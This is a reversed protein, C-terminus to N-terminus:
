FRFSTTLYIKQYTVDEDTGSPTYMDSSFNKWTGYLYAFDLLFQKDVIIGIGGSLFQKDYDSNAEQLPSPDLIYGGRFVLNQQEWLYEVGFKIKMKSEYLKDIRINEDLLSSHFTTLNVDDPVDFEIQSVDTYELDCSATLGFNSYAVGFGFQFPLSIDYEREEPDGDYPDEVGGDYVLIDSVNDKEVINMTHPLSINLGVRFYESPRLLAGIKLQFSSYDNLVKQSITYSDIDLNRNRPPNYQSDPETIPYINNIDTQLLDLIYTSSGTWFNLTAGVSVNPSIDIAGAFSWNNLSGDQQVLEEQQLDKDFYYDDIDFPIFLDNSSTSYGEFQLINDFDKVRQYGLSFVLSGQYTPIPFVLGVSSLKTFSNSSNTSNGLYTADNDYSLHSLGAFFEMKKIQALGAPNWYTASYDDAVATFATGMAISKAGFGYQNNLLAAAEEAFQAFLNISSFISFIFIYKKM